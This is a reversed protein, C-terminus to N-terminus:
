ARPPSVTAGPHTTDPFLLHFSPAMQTIQRRFTNGPDRMAALDTAAFCHASNPSRRSTHTQACLRVSARDGHLAGLVSRPVMHRRMEALLAIAEGRRDQMKAGSGVAVM